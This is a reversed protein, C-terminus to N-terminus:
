FILWKVSSLHKRIHTLYLIYRTFYIQQVLQKRLIWTGIKSFGITNSTPTSNKTASNVNYVYEVNQSNGSYPGSGNAIIKTINPNTQVHGEVVPSLQNPYPSAQLQQVNRIPKHCSNYVGPTSPSGNVLATPTNNQRLANSNAVTANMTMMSNVNINTGNQISNQHPSNNNINVSSQAGRVITKFCTLESSTIRSPDIIPKPRNFQRQNNLQQMPNENTGLPNLNLNVLQNLSALNQSLKLQDTENIISNWQAPLGVFVGQNHDFGSHVRHEFNTPSSIEPRKKRKGFGM